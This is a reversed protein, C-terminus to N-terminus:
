KNMINILQKAMALDEPTTLKINQYSAEVMKVKYGLLEVLMADDTAATNRDLAKEHAALLIDRRFAQPTQTLWVRSRPPTSEVFGEKDLLKITDKSPMGASAAGYLRADRICALIIQRSVFPRAGDHILLIESQESAAKIGIYASEQREAGGAVLKRVKHFQYKEIINQTFYELEERATVVVLEDLEPCGNFVALTHAIVPKDELELFQKNMGAKMRSGRGAALIIATNIKIM